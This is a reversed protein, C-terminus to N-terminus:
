DDFRRRRYAARRMELAEDFADIITVVVATVASEFSGTGQVSPVVIPSAYTNSQCSM